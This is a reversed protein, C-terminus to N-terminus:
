GTSAQDAPPVALSAAIRDVEARNRSVTAERPYVNLDWGFACVPVDPHPHLYASLQRLGAILQARATLDGPIVRSQQDTMITSGEQTGMPRSLNPAEAPATM